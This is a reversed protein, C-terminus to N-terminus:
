NWIYTEQIIQKIKAKIYPPRQNKAMSIFLLSNDVNEDIIFCNFWGLTDGKSTKTEKLEATGTKGAITVGQIKVDHGTGYRNEVAQILGEKIENAAEKSFASIVLYEADRNENYEIYPKIMHGDNVFASYISAMHIPNVLMEGQGYGSNALTVEGQITDTNSYQSKATKFGVDISQNFLIKDLGERFTEEGIQLTAQAFYINDSYILGNRLNKPGSYRTLTTISNEKWSSDKRWSLGYYYFVDKTKLKGSTLGIAGTLPKMTSGPCLKGLFRAYMPDRTDNSITSWEDVTMGQIFKNVDYSPVSILALIEGTKSNMAVFLGEDNKWQEYIRQQLDIDITLKIDEGDQVPIEAITKILRGESNEIYIKKGDIGKLREEYVRELGDKGILSNATYGKEQLTQLEESSINQVYGTIHATIEGYPYVREFESDIMVGPIQLLQEKLGNEELSLKKIPVFSEKNVWEKTLEKTITEIPINLITIIQQLSDETLKGPVVGVRYVRRQTALQAGHRDLISGRNAETNLVRVKYNEELEPFIVNSSWAIKYHNEKDLNLVAINKFEIRGCSTDMSTKYKIKTRDWEDEVNLITIEINKAQIGEYINKNRAIFEEQTYNEPLEVLSCLKEYRGNEIFSFYKNLIQVPDEVMKEYKDMIYFVAVSETILIVILILLIILLKKTM